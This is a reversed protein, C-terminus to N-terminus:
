RDGTNYCRCDNIIERGSASNINVEVKTSTAPQDVHGCEGGLVGVDCGHGLHDGGHLPRPAWPTAVAGSLSPMGINTMVLSSPRQASVAHWFM